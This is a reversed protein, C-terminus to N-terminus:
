TGFVQVVVVAILNASLAGMQGCFGMNLSVREVTKKDPFSRAKLYLSTVLLGRTFFLIAILAPVLVVADNYDFPKSQDIALLFCLIFSGAMSVVSVMLITTSGVCATALRGIVDCANQAINMWLLLQTKKESWNGAIYFMLTPMTYVAAYIVFSSALLVKGFFPFPQRSVALTPAPPKASSDSVSVKTSITAEVDSHVQTLNQLSTGHSLQPTGHGAEASSAPHMERASESPEFAKSEVDGIASVVVSFASIFVSPEELLGGSMQPAEADGGAAREQPRGHFLFCICMIMQAAAAFAFFPLPGFRPQGEKVGALQVAALASAVLGGLTTGVSMARTCSAPRSSAAAWYTVNSMCGVGGGLCTCLLLVASSGEVEFDWMFALVLLTITALAQAGAIIPIISPNGGQWRAIAKFGIPALNGLQTCFALLNGLREGEPLRALYLPGEAIIVNLCWWGSMGTLCWSLIEATSAQEPSIFSGRGM